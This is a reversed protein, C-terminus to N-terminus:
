GNVTQHDSNSIQSGGSHVPIAQERVNIKVRKTFRVLLALFSLFVLYGMIEDILPIQHIILMYVAQGFFITIGIPLLYKWSLEMLQDVRFRPLTWRVWIIVFILFFTKLLFFLVSLFINGHLFGPLNGGGLFIATSAAAIVYVNGWEALFFAAYRFSSYETAFGSVLESEAEPLDFPARNGEALASTFFLCFAILSFPNQFVMWDWPLWGQAQMLGSLSLSGAIMIPVLLSLAAPIEYSVIQAAARMGGLLSWKSNSSWGAMLIGIVVLSTISLFYLIGVNLDSAILGDGWPLVVFTGFVGAVCLFPAIKFVIRDAGQPILDEKMMLKIGDALWQLLGQPGVRNPGIRSQMRAAIRREIWTMVGGMVAFFSISLVGKIVMLILDLLDASFGLNQILEDM